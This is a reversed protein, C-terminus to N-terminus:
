PGVGPPLNDDVLLPNGDPGASFVVRSAANIGFSRGWGDIDFAPALGLAARDTPWNGTLVLHPNANLITQAIELKQQTTKRGPPVSSVSVQIDDGGGGNDQRNPGHSRVLLVDPATGGSQLILRYPQKWPDSLNGGGFGPDLYGPVLDAVTAPFAARDEFFARAAEAIAALEVQCGSVKERNVPGIVVLEILDDGDGTVTWMGGSTRSTITGDSGGSAVIADALGAPSTLPALDYLYTRNFADTTAEDVPDGRGGAVYPGQWDAVGPDIILATLGEAQTPLRGTDEYFATLGKSLAKMERLTAEERAQLLERFVLPTIAGALVAVIAVAVIIEILTFGSRTERKLRGSRNM